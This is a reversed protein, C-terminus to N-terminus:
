FSGWEYINILKNVSNDVKFKHNIYTRQNIDYEFNCLIYM